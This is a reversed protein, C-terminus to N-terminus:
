QELGKVAEQLSRIHGIEEQILLDVRDRHEETVANKLASFFAITDKEFGIALSLISQPSQVSGLLETVDRGLNFVHTDAVSKVYAEAQGQPDVVQADERACFEKRMEMFLKEHGREQEALDEMIKRTRGDPAMKAAQTYFEVGNHEIQEAMQMVESLSYSNAM